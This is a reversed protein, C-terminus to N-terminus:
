ASPRTKLARQYSGGLEVPLRNVMAESTQNEDILRATIDGSGIDEALARSVTEEIGSRYDIHM